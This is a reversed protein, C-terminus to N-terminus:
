AIENINGGELRLIGLAFLLAIVAMGPLAVATGAAALAAVLASAVVLVVGAVAGIAMASAIDKGIGIWLEPDSLTDIVSDSFQRFFNNTQQLNKLTVRIAEESFVFVPELRYVERVKGTLQLSQEGSLSVNTRDSNIVPLAEIGAAGSISIEDNQINLSPKIKFQSGGFSFSLNQDTDISVDQVLGNKLKNEAALGLTTGNILEIGSHPGLKLSLEHILRTPQFSYVVAGAIIPLIPPLGILSMEKKWSFVFDNIIAIRIQSLIQRVFSLADEATKYGRQFLADLVRRWEEPDALLLEIERVIDLIRINAASIEKSFNAQTAEIQEDVKNIKNWLYGTKDGFIDDVVAAVAKQARPKVYNVAGKLRDGISSIASQFQDAVNNVSPSVINDYVNFKISYGFANFNVGLNRTWNAASLIRGKFEAILNDAGKTANDIRSQLVNAANEIVGNIEAGTLYANKIIEIFHWIASKVEDQIQTIKGKLWAQASNTASTVADIGQRVLRQVEDKLRQSGPVWSPIRNVSREVNGALQKAQNIIGNALSDVQNKGPNAIDDVWLNANHRASDLAAYIKARQEANMQNLLQQMEQEYSRKEQQLQAIRANAEARKPGAFNNLATDYIRQIRPDAFLQGNGGARAGTQTRTQLGDFRVRLDYDTAKGDSSNVRVLYTGPQLQVIIKEDTVGDRTGQGILRNRSDYLYLDANALLDALYVTVWGPRSVTFRFYNDSVLDGVIGQISTEFPAQSGFDPMPKALFWDLGGSGSQEYIAKQREQERREQELKEQLEKERRLREEEQRQEYNPNWVPIYYEKGEYILHPDVIGFGRNRDVIFQWYAPDNAKAAASRQDLKSPHTMYKLVYDSNTHGQTWNGVIIKEWDYYEGNLDFREANAWIEPSITAPDVADINFIPPITTTVNATAALEAALAEFAAVVDEPIEDADIDFSNSQSRGALGWDTDAKDWNVEYGLDALAALTIPSLPSYPKGDQGILFGLNATMIEDQFLGQHWHLDASGDGSQELAIYDAQGGLEQFASVANRGTYRSASTGAFDVLGKAEWLNGFGLGHLLEHQAVGFLQGNRELEELDKKDFQILAQAPMLTVYRMFDIKTRALTGGDGDINAVSLKVNIDDIIKGDVLANPFGSVILEEISRIAAQIINQQSPTFDDTFEADINFPDPSTSEFGRIMYTANGGDASELQLVIKGSLSDPVEVTHTGRGLHQESIFEGNETLVSLKVQGQLVAIQSGAWESVNLRYFDVPDNGGVQDIIDSIFSPILDTPSDSWAGGRNLTGYNAGLFGNGGQDVGSSDVQPMPVLPEPRNPYAADGATEKLPNDFETDVTLVRQGLETHRWDLNDAIVEDLLVTYGKAGRVRFIVDNYDRDSEQDVRMDEFVFTNGDGFVDAMQGMAFMDDPNATAMSFLPAESGGVGPNELVTSVLGNPVLMFGFRDGPRMQFTKAGQYDGSNWNGSEGPMQGDFRAGELRDSIVIHGDETSSLGRRAAERIFDESGLDFDDMGELSFIALEGQYGGGDYLYDITVLGSDDVTFYGSEFEFSVLDLFDDSFTTVFEVEDFEDDPVEIFEDGSLEVEYELVVTDFADQFGDYEELSDVEVTFDDTLPPVYAETSSEELGDIIASPNLIEELEFTNRTQPQRQSRKFGQGPTQRSKFPGFMISFLSM